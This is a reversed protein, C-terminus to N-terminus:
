VCTALVTFIYLILQLHIKATGPPVYPTERPLVGLLEFWDDERDTVPQQRFERLTPAEEKIKREEVVVVQIEEDAATGVVSVFSEDEMPDREKLIVSINFSLTVCLYHACYFLYVPLILQLHIEATGPPVYPTERPLVGLLEFWDDERDTVPQQTFERLTPTEEIIKREEVVVVQIEEDAATGVVSVFSEDEM